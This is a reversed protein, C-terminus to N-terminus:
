DCQQYVKVSDIVMAHDDSTNWTAAWNARDNWFDKPATKSGDVWPKGDIGDQFWGNTAGVAVNLILYFEQDFPTSLHDNVSSWPDVFMTGNSSSLPFDGREWMHGDFKTYLVQLLRTNVYTFLYKESWELGFKNYGDSYTTHLARHKVNTKWWADHASDPGWHMASSVINNGGQPYTHDNGRSEIIDIEGSLPWPGYTNNVPLMWIAPWLWKGRPLKAVVEIRGYTIPYKKLNIRASKVPSVITNNTSNTGIFCNTPIKSTCIGQATLNLYAGDKEILTADQLTPKIYLKGDQVYSNEDSNTTYEFQGNRSLINTPHM